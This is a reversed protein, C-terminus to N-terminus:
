DGSERRELEREVASHIAESLTDRAVAQLDGRLDKFLKEIVPELYHKLRDEILADIRPQLQALLSARLSEALRALQQEQLKDTAALKPAVPDPAIPGPASGDTEVMETLLPLDDGERSFDVVEELVPIEPYSPGSAHGPRHRAMLADAKGLLDEPEAM